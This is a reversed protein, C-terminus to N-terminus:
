GPDPPAQDLEASPAAPERSPVTLEASPTAPLFMRGAAATAVVFHGAMREVLEEPASLQDLLLGDVLAVVMRAAAEPHECPMTAAARDVFQNRARRIIAQLAPRDSAHLYLEYRARVLDPRAFARLMVGHMHDVLQDTSFPQSVYSDGTPVDGIQLDVMRDLVAEILGDLSGFHYKAQGQAVGARAEVKRHTLGRMGDDALQAIAADLLRQRTRAAAAQRTSPSASHGAGDTAPSIAYAGKKSNTRYSRTRRREGM